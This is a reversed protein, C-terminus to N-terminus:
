YMCVVLAVGVSRRGTASRWILAAGDEWWCRDRVRGERAHPAVRREEVWLRCSPRRRKVDQLSYSCCSEVTLLPLRDMVGFGDECVVHACLGRMM